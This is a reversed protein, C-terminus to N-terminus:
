PTDGFLSAQAPGADVSMLNRAAQQYYSQKLEVLVAKRGMELACYGESGIGGFPSFVVDGPRGGM